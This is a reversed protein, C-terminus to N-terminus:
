SIQVCGRKVGLSEIAYSAFPRTPFLAVWCRVFLRAHAVPDPVRRAQPLVSRPVQPVLLMPLALRHRQM